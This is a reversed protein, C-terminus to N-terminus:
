ILADLNGAINRIISAAEDIKKCNNFLQGTLDCAKIAIEGSIIAGDDDLIDIKKSLKEIESRIKQGEELAEIYIGLTTHYKKLVQIRLFEKGELSMEYNDM